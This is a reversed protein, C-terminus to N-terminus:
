ISQWKMQNLLMKSDERFSCFLLMIYTKYLILGPEEVQLYGFVFCNVCGIFDALVVAQFAKPYAVFAFDIVDGFERLCMRAACLVQEEGRSFIESGKPAEVLLVAGIM